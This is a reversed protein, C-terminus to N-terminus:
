AVAHIQFLETWALAWTLLEPCAQNADTLMEALDDESLKIEKSMYKFEQPEYAMTRLMLALLVIHKDLQFLPQHDSEESFGTLFRGTAAFLPLDIDYALETELQRFGGKWRPEKVLKELLARKKPDNRHNHISQLLASRHADRSITSTAPSPEPLPDEDDHGVEVFQRDLTYSMVPSYDLVQEPSFVQTLMDGSKDLSVSALVEVECVVDNFKPEPQNHRHRKEVSTSVRGGRAGVLEGCYECQYLAWIDLEDLEAYAVEPPTDPLGFIAHVLNNGRETWKAWVHEFTAVDPELKLAAFGIGQHGKRSVKEPFIKLKFARNNLQFWLPQQLTAWAPLIGNQEEWLEVDYIESLRVLPPWLRQLEEHSINLYAAAPLTALKFLRDPRLLSEPGEWDAVQRALIRVYDEAIADPVRGTNAGRLYDHLTAINATKVIIQGQGAVFQLADQEPILPEGDILIELLYTGNSLEIPIQHQDELLSTELIIRPSSFLDNLYRLQFNFDGIWPHELFSKFVLMKSGDVTQYSVSAHRITPRRRVEFLKWHQQFVQYYVESRTNQHSRVMDYLPDDKVRTTFQGNADFDITRKQQQGKIWVKFFRANGKPAIVNVTARELDDITLPDNGSGPTVWGFIRRLDWVLSIIEQGFQLRLRIDDRLDIWTIKLGNAEATEIKLKEQSVINESTIGSVICVPLNNPTYVGHMDPAQITLNPLVSFQLATPLIPQLNQRLQLTYTAAQQPLLDGLAIQISGDGEFRLFGDQELERLQRQARFGGTSRVWLTARNLLRETAEPIKLSIDLGQFAAPIKPSLGTIKHGILEPEGASVAKRTLETIQYGNQWVAVPLRLEYLGAHAHGLEEALPEPVPLKQVPQILQDDDSKLVMDPGMSIYWMGNTMARSDKDIITGYVGQRADRFFLIDQKPIAPVNFHKLELDNEDLLVVRGRLPGESLITEDIWWQGEGRWADLYKWTDAEDLTEDSAVWVVRDPKTLSEVAMEAIRLQMEHDDLSWVWSVNGGSRARGKTIEDEKEAFVKALEDWLAREIPNSALLQSVSELTEGETFANAAEAMHRIIESATDATDDSEIFTRLTRPLSDLSDDVRLEDVLFEAPIEIIARWNDKLWAAFDDQLYYPIIAHRYMPRVVDGPSRRPFELNFQSELHVICDDFKRRCRNQFNMETQPLGWVLQGYPQWFNRAQQNSYRAAFVMTTIFLAPPVETILRRKGYMMDRQIIRCMTRFTQQDIALEGILDINEFAQNLKEELIASSMTSDVNFM